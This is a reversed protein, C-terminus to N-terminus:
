ALVTYIRGLACGVLSDGHLDVVDDLLSQTQWRSCPKLDHILQHLAQVLWIWLNFANLSFLRNPAEGSKVRTPALGIRGVLYKPLVSQAIGHATVQDHHDGNGM